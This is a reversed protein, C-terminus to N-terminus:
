NIILKRKKLPLRYLVAATFKYSTTLQTGKLKRYIPFDGSLRVSLRPAFNINIGPIAYIWQGGSSPFTNGDILDEAQKRYRLYSFVDIPWKAFLSYNLGLSAQFENGFKYTQTENYNKNEGSYRFTTVAMLSLNPVIFKSKQFYSWFIGDLSGSGPQMDAALVLGENNTHDTRGTPFKPGAGIVWELNPNKFNDILRYKVLFVIDGLGSAVTLDETGGFSQVKREQRIFPVVGTLTLRQNLGYNIEIISSRTTRSRTNDNLRKSIDM